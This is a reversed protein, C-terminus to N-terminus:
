RGHKSEHDQEIPAQWGLPTRIGGMQCGVQIGISQTEKLDGSVFMESGFYIFQRPRWASDWSCLYCCGFASGFSISQLSPIKGLMKVHFNELIFTSLSTYGTDVYGGGLHFLQEYKPMIYTHIYTHIWKIRGIHTYALGHSLLSSTDPCQVGLYKLMQRRLIFVNEKTVKTSYGCTLLNLPVLIM